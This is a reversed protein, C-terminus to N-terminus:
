SAGAVPMAVLTADSLKLHSHAGVEGNGGGKEGFCVALGVIVQGQDISQEATGKKIVWPSERDRNTRLTIGRKEENYPLQTIMEGGQGDIEFRKTNFASWPTPMPDPHLTIDGYEKQQGQDTWSRQTMSPVPGGIGVERYKIIGNELYEARLGIIETVPAVKPADESYIRDMGVDVCCASIAVLNRYASPEHAWLLVQYPLMQFAVESGSGRCHEPLIDVPYISLRPHDWIPITIASSPTDSDPSPLEVAQPAWM